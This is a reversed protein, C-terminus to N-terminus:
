KTAHARPARWGPRRSRQLCRYLQVAEPDLDFRTHCQNSKALCVFRPLVRANENDVSVLDNRHTSTLIGGLKLHGISSGSPHSISRVFHGQQCFCRSSRRVAVATSAGVRTLTGSARVRAYSRFYSSMARRDARKPLRVCPSCAIRKRTGMRVHVTENVSWSRM